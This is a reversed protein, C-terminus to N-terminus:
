CFIISIRNVGSIKDPFCIKLIEAYLHYDDNASRETIILQGHKNFVAKSWMTCIVKKKYLKTNIHLDQLIDIIDGTYSWYADSAPNHKDIIAELEKLFDADGKIAIEKVCWNM